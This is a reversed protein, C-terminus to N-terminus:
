SDKRSVKGGQIRTGTKVNEYRKGMENTIAADTKPYYLVM